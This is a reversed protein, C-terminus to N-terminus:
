GAASWWPRAQSQRLDHEGVLSRSTPVTSFSSSTLSASHGPATAAPRGGGLYLIHHAAAHDRRDIALSGIMSDRRAGFPAPPPIAAIIGGPIRATATRTLSTTPTAPKTTGPMCTSTSIEPLM